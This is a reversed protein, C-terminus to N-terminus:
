KFNNNRNNFFTSIQEKINTKFNNFNNIKILCKEFNNFDATNIIKNLKSDKINNYFYKTQKLISEIGYKNIIDNKIYFVDWDTLIINNFNFIKNKLHKNIITMDITTEMPICWSNNLQTYEKFEAYSSNFQITNILIDNKKVDLAKFIKSLEKEPTTCLDKFLIINEAPKYNNIHYIYEDLIKSRDNSNLYLNKPMLRILLNINLDNLLDLKYQPPKLNWVKKCINYKINTLTPNNKYIPKELLRYILGASTSVRFKNYNFSILKFM